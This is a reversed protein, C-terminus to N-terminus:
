ARPSAQLVESVAPLDYAWSPVMEGPSRALARQCWIETSKLLSATLWRKLPEPGGHGHLAQFAYLAAGAHDPKQARTWAEGHGAMYAYMGWLYGQTDAFRAPEDRWMFRLQSNCNYIREKERSTDGGILHIYIDLKDIFKFGCSSELSEHLGYQGLMEGLIPNTQARGKWAGVLGLWAERELQGFLDARVLDVFCRAAERTVASTPGLRKAVQKQLETTPERGEIWTEVAKARQEAAAVMRGPMDGCRGATSPSFTREGIAHLLRDLGDQWRHACMEFGWKPMAERLQLAWQPISDIEPLIANIARIDDDYGDDGPEIVPTDWWLHELRNLEAHSKEHM